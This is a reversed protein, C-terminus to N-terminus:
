TAEVFVAKNQLFCKWICKRLHFNNYKSQLQVSILESSKCNLMLWCQILYHSPTLFAESDCSNREPRLINITLDNCYHWMLPMTNWIVPWEAMHEIAQKPQCWLFCWLEANSARQTTFGGTVPPNGMCLALLASVNRHWSDVASWHIGVCLALLASVNRHLLDVALWHIGWM